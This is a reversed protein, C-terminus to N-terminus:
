KNGRLLIAEEAATGEAEVKGVKGDPELRYVRGYHQPVAQAKPMVKELFAANAEASPQGCIERLKRDDM